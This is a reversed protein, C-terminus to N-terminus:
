MRLSRQGVRHIALVQGRIMARRKTQADRALEAVLADFIKRMNRQGIRELVDAVASAGGLRSVAIGPEGANLNTPFNEQHLFM